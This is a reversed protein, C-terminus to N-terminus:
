LKISPFTSVIGFDPVIIVIYLAIAMSYPNKDVRLEKSFEVQKQKKLSM